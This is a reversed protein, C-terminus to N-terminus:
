VHARGIKRMANRVVDLLEEDSVDNGPHMPMGWFWVDQKDMPGMVCPADPSVLWHFLAQKLEEDQNLGPIRLILTVFSILSHLGQMEIGLHKRVASRAGDAGIVYRANIDRVEETKLNRVTANVTGDANQTLSEFRNEFIVTALPESRVHDLLVSEVVYQPIFEAHEPFRDDLQPASCFANEFSFIEHGFLATAFRVRRPFDPKLPSRRRIEPALGWRRMHTMTRVNTTKARPQVGVRENQEIVCASHGRFTLETALALGVPGGGVIAVDFQTQNSAM